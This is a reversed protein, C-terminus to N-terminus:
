LHSKKQEKKPQKDQSPKQHPKDETLQLLSETYLYTYFSNPIGRIRVKKVTKRTPDYWMLKAHDVELLVNKRSKSLALPRPGWFELPSPQKFRFARYWPNEVGYEKMLWVDSSFDPYNDLICLSEGFPGLSRYNMTIYKKNLPPFPIETFRELGLDFGVITELGHGPNKSGLWHVAGSAFVGWKLYFVVNSPVNRVRTWSNSKLSYVIVMFGRFQIQCEAIKVVKYDDNVHDYGFGCISTEVSHFSRPFEPLASPLKRAKRTAPNFLVIENMEEKAVCVLGKAAGFFEAGSLISKLSDSIEAIASSGDDLSDFDALYIKGADDNIILGCGTNCELATELHKKVFANSDILSCWGKSVCRFRLLPKVPLRCLVQDIMQHPFSM